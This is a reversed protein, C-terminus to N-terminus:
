HKRRQGPTKDLAKWFEFNSYPVIISTHPCDILNSHQRRVLKRMWEKLGKDGWNSLHGVVSAARLVNQFLFILWWLLTFLQMVRSSEAWSLHAFLFDISLPLPQTSMHTHCSAVTKCAGTTSICASVAVWIFKSAEFIIGLYSVVYKPLCMDLRWPLLWKLGKALNPPLLKKEFHWNKLTFNPKKQSKNSYHVM